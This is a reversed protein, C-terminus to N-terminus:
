IGRDGGPLTTIAAGSLPPTPRPTAAPIPRPTPPTPPTPRARPTPQPTPRPTPQQLPTARYPAIRGAKARWMAGYGPDRLKQGARPTKWRQRRDDWHHGRWQTPGGESPPPPGRERYATMGVAKQVLELMALVTEDHWDPGEPQSMHAMLTMQCM